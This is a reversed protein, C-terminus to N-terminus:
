PVVLWSGLAVPVQVLSNATASDMFFVGWNVSGSLFGLGLAANDVSSWSFFLQGLSPVTSPITGVITTAVATPADVATMTGGNLVGAVYTSVLVKTVVGIPGRINYPLSFRIGTLGANAFSKLPTGDEKLAVTTSSVVTPPVTSSLVSRTYYFRNGAAIALISGEAAPVDERVAGGSKPVSIIKTETTGVPVVVFVRNTTVGFSYIQGGNDFIPTVQGAVTATLPVRYLIGATTNAVFLNTGDSNQGSAFSAGTVLPVVTNSSVTYVSLTSTFTFTNPDFSSSSLFVRNSTDQVVSFISSINAQTPTIAQTSLTPTSLDIIKVTDSNAADILFMHTAIGTSLNYVISTPRSLGTPLVTPAVAVGDSILVSKTINDANTGGSGFFLGCQGDAGPLEYFLRRTNPNSADSVGSFTCVKTAASESSIQVPPNSASGPVGSSKAVKVKWLKGASAYVEFVPNEPTVFSTTAANWTGSYVSIAKSVVPAVTVPPAAPAAPDVAMLPGGSSYFFHYRVSDSIGGGGFTATVTTNQNLTVPCTGTGPCSVGGGSWGTFGTGSATLTVVTGKNLVASCTTAPCNIGGPNSTVTGTGAVVVTLIPRNFNATVTTNATLTFNCTGTGSCVTATWGTFNSVSNPTAQLTLTTGANYSPACAGFPAGGTTSCAITGGGGNASATNTSLSFTVTSLVFNATVASNANLTMSCNVSANPCATANGTGNTWGTFTSGSNATAQLVLATGSAYSSACPDFSDGDNTSCTVSGQGTGQKAITLTPLAGGPFTATISSDGTVTFACPGTGTCSAANGTGASWGAFGAGTATLTVAHGNLFANSCTTGCNIGTPFSAGIPNSAVTGSGAVTVSVMSFEAQLHTIAAAESVLTLGPFATDFDEDSFNLTAPFQAPLTAPLPIPNQGAPIGGLTLLLQAVNVVRADTLSTAGFLMLATIVPAGPVPTGITRGGIDFTLTDGPNYTFQGTASTLGSLGSPAAQYGLGAIPSDIIVGALPAAVPPTGGGGDSGGCGAILTTSVVLALLVMGVRMAGSWEHKM